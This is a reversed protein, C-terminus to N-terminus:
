AAVTMRSAELRTVGEENANNGSSVLGARAEETAEDEDTDIEKYRSVRLMQYDRHSSGLVRRLVARFVVLEKNLTDAKERAVAQLEQQAVMSEQAQAWKSQAAEVLATMEEILAAGYRLKDESHQEHSTVLEIMRTAANIVDDPVSLTSSLQDVNLDTIDRKLLSIWNKGALYLERVAAYSDNRAKKAGIEGATKGEYCEVFQEVSPILTTEFAAISSYKQKHRDFVRIARGSLRRLKSQPVTTRTENILM